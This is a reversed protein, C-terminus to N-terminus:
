ELLFRRPCSGTELFPSSNPSPTAVEFTWEEPLMKRPFGLQCGPPNDSCSIIMHLRFIFPPFQPSRFSGVHPTGCRRSFRKPFPTLFRLPLAFMELHSVPQFFNRVSRVGLNVAPEAQLLIRTREICFHILGAMGGREDEVQFLPARKRELALGAAGATM